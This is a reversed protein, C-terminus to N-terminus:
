FRCGNQSELTEWERRHVKDEQQHSARDLRIGRDRRSDGAEQRRIHVRAGLVQIHSQRTQYKAREM